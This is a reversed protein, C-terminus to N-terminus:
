NASLERIAAQVAPASVDGGDRVTVLVMETNPQLRGEELATQARGSEGPYEEAATMKNQGVASGLVVAAVVFALWGLIAAKRHRASWAAARAVLSKRVGMVPRRRTPTKVAALSGCRRHKCM